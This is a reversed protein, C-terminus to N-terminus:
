EGQQTADDIRFQNKGSNKAEYLADDVRKYLAQYDRESPLIFTAGISAHVGHYQPRDIKHMADLLAETKATLTDMDGIGPALMMFEDGGIRGMVDTDRLNERIRAGVERIIEDGAIHGYTDNVHKFNDIDLMILAGPQDRKSSLYMSIANETAVRSSLGSVEDTQAIRKMERAHEEIEKVDQVDDIKGVVRYIHGNEDPLSIYRARVWRYEGGGYRARYEFCASTPEKCADDLMKLYGAVSDPHMVSSHHLRNHYDAISKEKVGEGKVFVSRTLVDCVPDYDFTAVNTDEMLIQYREEQWKQAQEVRVADDINSITGIVRLTKGAESRIVTATLHSWQYSGGILRLRLTCSAYRRGDRMREFFGRMVDADQPYVCNEIVAGDDLPDFTLQSFAFRDYSQSHYLHAQEDDWEFVAIDTQEIIIRYREQQRLIEERQQKEQDIDTIIVAFWKQGHEDTEIRGVDYVWKLEGSKTKVRYECQDTTGVSIQADIEDLVRQRDEEYIMQSFRNRTVERFEAETYGLLSLIGPSIYAFQENEDATYRFVGGPMSKMMLELEKNTEDLQIALRKQESVDELSVFYLDSTETSAILRVRSRLWSVGSQEMHRTRVECEAERHTKRATKLMNLYIPVDDVYIREIMHLGTRTYGERTMHFIDFCRDNIRLAELNEGSHELIAAGGIFSTFLKASPSRPDWLEDFDKLSDAEAARLPGTASLNILKEFDDAPMPKAFYYGQMLVCGISKLYEAQAKTEVGEAIVPMDLWRAMRVISSLINGGRGTHEDGALFKLDLKLVDVPVDKLTNLSSYGSGFDDMEVIFGREKLQKVLDILQAPKEVYASETIELKLSHVPIDYKKTIGTLRDILDPNYIDIRSVNVSVTIPVYRESHDMWHRLYRCAEEWIYQDMEMIFGSKEFAPIFENPSIFGRTPHMWRVLAEAGFIAGTEYNYQPQFYLIFQKETIATRMDAILQQETLLQDRMHEDYYAYHRHYNGKVSRQALLARDCMLSVSQEPDTIVYVGASPVFEFEEGYQRLWSRVREILTDMNLSRFPLFCAFHDAELRACLVHNELGVRMAAGLSSLLRDGAEMGYLDNYVKFRAVDWRVLAYQTGPDAVLIEHVRQCFYDKSYLGTLEDFRSQYSREEDKKVLEALRRRQKAYRVTLLIMGVILVLALACLGIAYPRNRETLLALTQAGEGLSFPAYVMLLALLFCLRLVLRWACCRFAKPEKM